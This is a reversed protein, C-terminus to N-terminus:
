LVINGIDTVTGNAVVVGTIMKAVKGSLPDPTLTVTYTGVPLGDL